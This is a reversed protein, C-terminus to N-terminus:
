GIHLKKHPVFVDWMFTTIQLITGLYMGIELFQFPFIFFSGNTAAASATEATILPNDHLSQPALSTAMSCSSQPHM